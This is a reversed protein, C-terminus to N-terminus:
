ANRPSERFAALLASRAEDPLRDPPLEGLTSITRRFQSLYGDCGDCMALHDVFEREQESDLAGDLFETVMEVFEDCNLESM